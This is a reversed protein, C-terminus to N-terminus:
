HPFKYQSIQRIGIVRKLAIFLTLDWFLINTVWIRLIVILSLNTGSNCIITGLCKASDIPRVIAGAKALDSGMCSWLAM